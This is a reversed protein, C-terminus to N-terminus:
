AASFGLYLRMDEKLLGLLEDERRGRRRKRLPEFIPEEEQEWEEEKDGVLASRGLAVEPLSTILYTRQFAETGVGRVHPQVLTM